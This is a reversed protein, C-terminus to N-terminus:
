YRMQWGLCSNKGTTQQNGSAHKIGAASKGQADDVDVAERNPHEMHVELEVWVVSIVMHPGM